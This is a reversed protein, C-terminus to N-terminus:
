SQIHELEASLSLQPPLTETRIGQWLESQPAQSLFGPAKSYTILMTSFITEANLNRSKILTTLHEVPNERPM